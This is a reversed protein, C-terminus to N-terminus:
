KVLKDVVGYTSLDHRKISNFIQQGLNWAEVESAQIHKYPGEMNFLRPDQKSVSNKMISGVAHGLEHCLIATAEYDSAIEIRPIVIDADVYGERIAAKYRIYSSDFPGGVRHIRLIHM